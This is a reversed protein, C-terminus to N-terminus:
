PTGNIVMTQHTATSSDSAANRFRSLVAQMSGAQPQGPAITPTTALTSADNGGVAPIPPPVITTQNAQTNASNLAALKERALKNHADRQQDQTMDKFKSPPEIGIKQLQEKRKKFNEEKKKNEETSSQNVRRKAIKGAPQKTRTTTDHTIALTKICEFWSNFDNTFGPTSQLAIDMNQKSTIIEFGIDSQIMSQTLWEKKQDESVPTTRAQELDLLKQM